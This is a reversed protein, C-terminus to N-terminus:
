IELLSEERKLLQTYQGRKLNIYLSYLFSSSARSLQNRMRLKDFPDGVLIQCRGIQVTLQLLKQTYPCELATLM